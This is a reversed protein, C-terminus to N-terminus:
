APCHSSITNSPSMAALSQRNRKLRLPRTNAAAEIERSMSFRIISTAISCSIAAQQRLLRWIAIGPLSLSRLSILKARVRRRLAYPQAGRVRNLSRTQCLPSIFRRTRLETSPALDKVWHDITRRGKSGGFGILWCERAATPQRRGRGIASGSDQRCFWPWPKFSGVIGAAM